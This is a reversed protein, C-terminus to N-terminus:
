RVNNVEESHSVSFGLVYCCPTLEVKIIKPNRHAGFVWNMNGKGNKMSRSEKIGNKLEVHGPLNRQDPKEQLSKGNYLPKQQSKLLIYQLRRHLQMFKGFIYKYEKDSGNKSLFYVIIRILQLRAQIMAEKETKPKINTVNELLYIQPLIKEIHVIQSILDYYEQNKYSADLLITAIDILILKERTEIDISNPYVFPTLLRGPLIDLNRQINDLVPMIYNKHLHGHERYFLLCEATKLIESKTSLVNCLTPVNRNEFNSNEFQLFQEVLYKHQDDEINVKLLSSTIVLIKEIQILDNNNNYTANTTKVEDNDNYSYANDCPLQTMCRAHKPQPNLINVPQDQTFHKPESEKEAKEASNLFLHAGRSYVAAIHYPPPQKPKTGSPLQPQLQPSSDVYGSERDITNVCKATYSYITESHHDDIQLNEM